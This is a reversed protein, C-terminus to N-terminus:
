GAGTYENISAITKDISQIQKEQSAHTKELQEILDKHHGVVKVIIGALAALATVILLFGGSSIGAINAGEMLALNLTSIVMRTERGLGSARLADGAFLMLGIHQFRHQFQSELQSSSTRTRNLAQNAKDIESAADDGGAARITILADTEAM